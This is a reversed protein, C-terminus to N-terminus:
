VDRLQVASSTPSSGVMRVKGTSTRLARQELCYGGRKPTNTSMSLTSAAASSSVVRAVLVRFVNPQVISESRNASGSPSVIIPSWAKSRLDGHKDCKSSWM